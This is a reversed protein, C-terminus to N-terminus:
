HLSILCTFEGYSDFMPLSNWVNRAYIWCACYRFSSATKGFIKDLLFASRSADGAVYLLLGIRARESGGM